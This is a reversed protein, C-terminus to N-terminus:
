HLPAHKPFRAARELNNIDLGTARLKKSIEMGPHKAICLVVCEMTLIPVDCGNATDRFPAIQEADTLIEDLDQSRQFVKESFSQKGDRRLLRSLVSPKRQSTQRVEDYYQLWYQWRPPSLQCFQQLFAELDEPDEWYRALREWNDIYMGALLDSVEIVQSARSNALMAAISEARVLDQTFRRRVPADGSKGNKPGPGQESPRM